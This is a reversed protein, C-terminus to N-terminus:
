LLANPNNDVVRYADVNFYFECWFKHVTSDTVAFIDERPRCEVFNQNLVPTTDFVRSLTWFNLNGKFDGSVRNNRFRYEAYRPTYGFTGNNVNDTGSQPSGQIASFYLEQNQIPQEGIKSFQPWYYDYVDDHLYMKPIGQQYDARPMISLIGMIWGYESFTRKFVHSGGASVGNGAPTGLPSSDTTESTQLLQSIVVHNKVGGLFEPRQLRADSGKIGFMMLNQEQYRTGGVARAELFRQAAMARRLERITGEGVSGTSLGKAIDSISVSLGANPNPLFSNDVQYAASGQPGKIMLQGTNAQGQLVQFAATLSEDGVSPGGSWGAITGSAFAKGSGSVSGSGGSGPIMVDDGKQAFPLASTFYDKRWSRHRIQMFLKREDRSRTGSIVGSDDAFWDEGDDGFWPDETLNEDRYYQSYILNYVRFPMADLDYVSTSNPNPNSDWTQFGLYDALSGNRLTGVLTDNTDSSTRATVGQIIESSTLRYKPKAPINDDSLRYGNRSGTIFTEWQSWILRNPVFFFHVYVDIEGMVPARLPALRVLDQLSLSFTDNPLVDQVYIPILQGMNCSLRSMFGLNYRHKKRKPVKVTTFQNM